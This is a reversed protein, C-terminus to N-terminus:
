NQWLGRCVTWSRICSTWLDAATVLWPRSTNYATKITSFAPNPPQLARLISESTAPAKSQPKLATLNYLIRIQSQALTRISRNAYSTPYPVWSKYLSTSHGVVCWHSTYLHSLHQSIPLFRDGQALARVLSTRGHLSLPWGSYRMGLKLLLSSGRCRRTM